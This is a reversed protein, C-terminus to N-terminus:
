GDQLLAALSDPLQKGDGYHVRVVIDGVRFLYPNRIQQLFEMVRETIPKAADIRIDRLDM